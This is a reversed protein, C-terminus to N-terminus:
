KRKRKKKEWLIKGEKKITNYIPEISNQYEQESIYIANMVVNYNLLIKLKFDSFLETTQKKNKTLLLIDIDSEPNYENRAVSGFLTIRVLNQDIKPYKDILNELVKDKNLLLM